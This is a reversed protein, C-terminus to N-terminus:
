AHSKQSKITLVIGFEEQLYKCLCDYRDRRKRNRPCLQYIEKLDIELALSTETKNENTVRNRLEPFRESLAMIDLIYRHDIKKEDLPLSLVENDKRDANHSRSSFISKEKLFEYWLFVVGLTQM